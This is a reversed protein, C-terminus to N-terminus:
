KRLDPLTYNYLVSLKQKKNLLVATDDQVLVSRAVDLTWASDVADLDLKVRDLSVEIIRDVRFPLKFERTVGDGTFTERAQGSLITNRADAASQGAVIQPNYRQDRPLADVTAKDDVGLRCFSEIRDVHRAIIREFESREPRIWTGVLTTCTQPANGDAFFDTLIYDHEDFETTIRQEAARYM